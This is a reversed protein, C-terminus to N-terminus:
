IWPETCWLDINYCGVLHLLSCDLELKAVNSHPLQGILPYKKVKKVKVGGLEGPYIDKVLPQSWLKKYEQHHTYLVGSIHLTINCHFLINVAWQQMENSIIISYLVRQLSLPWIKHTDPPLRIHTHTHTHSHLSVACSLRGMWFFLYSVIFLYIRVESYSLCLRVFM